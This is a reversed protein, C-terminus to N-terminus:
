EFLKVSQPHKPKTIMQPASGRLRKNKPKPPAELIKFGIKEYVKRRTKSSGWCMPNDDLIDYVMLPKKTRGDQYIFQRQIRGVRQETKAKNNNPTAMILTDLPKCDKGEDMVKTGVIVHLDDEEMRQFIKEFDRQGGVLSVASKGYADLRIHIQEALWKAHQVRETIVLVKRDEQTVCKMVLDIIMTNRKTDSVLDSLLYVWQKHKSVTKGSFLFQVTGVDREDIGEGVILGVMDFIALHLNDKRTPTASVWCRYKPNFTTTVTAFTAAAEHHGEDNITLGFFNRNDYCFKKNKETSNLSQYTAVTIPYFKKKRGSYTGLLEEGYIDELENINSHGRFRQIWQDSLTRDHVLILTNLGLTCTLGICLVTKGYAPPAQIGGGGMAQLIDVMIKQGTKSTWRPDQEVKPDIKLEFDFASASRKDIIEFDKFVRLYKPVNGRHFGYYNVGDFSDAPFYKYTQTEKLQEIPKGFEDVMTKDIYPTYFTYEALLEHTVYEEPVYIRNSLIAQPKRSTM